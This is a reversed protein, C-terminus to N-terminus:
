KILRRIGVALAYVIAELDVHLDEVLGEADVEALAEV